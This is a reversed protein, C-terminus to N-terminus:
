ERLLPKVAACVHSTIRSVSDIFRVKVDSKWIDEFTGELINGMCFEPMFACPYVSGDPGIELKTRGACCKWTDLVTTVGEKSVYVLKPKEISSLDLRVFPDSKKKFVKCIRKITEDYEDLSLALNPHIKGRGKMLYPVVQIHLGMDLIFKVFRDLIKYNLRSAVCNVLVPKQHKLLVELGNLAKKYSGQGRLSDHEKEFGDLSVMYLADIDKITDIFHDILIANTFISISIDVEHLKKIIYAIDERAFIEGGTLLLEFVGASKLKQIVEFCQQTSLERYQQEGSNEICHKCRLNCKNTIRWVVRLPARLEFDLSRESPLKITKLFTTLHEFVQQTSLDYQSALVEILRTSNLKMAYLRLIEYASRNLVFYPHPYVGKIFMIFTNENEKRFKFGPRATHLLRHGKTEPTLIPLKARRFFIGCGTDEADIYELTPPDFNSCMVSM